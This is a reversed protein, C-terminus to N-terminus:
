AVSLALGKARIAGADVPFESTILMGSLLAGAQAVQRTLATTEIPRHLM